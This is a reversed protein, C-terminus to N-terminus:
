VGFREKLDSSGTKDLLQTGRVVVLPFRQHQGMSWSHFGMQRRLEQSHLWLYVLTDGM